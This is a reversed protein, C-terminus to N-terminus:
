HEGEVHALARLHEDVGLDGLRRPLPRVLLPAQRDGPEVELDDPGLDHGHGPDVEVAVLHDDLTVLQEAPHEQVLEVVEVAHQHEVAEVGVLALTRETLQAVDVEPLGPELPDVVDPAQSSTLRTKKPVGSAATTGNSASSAAPNSIGRTTVCGSRRRPRPPAVTGLGTFRDAAACPMSTAVGSRARSAISAM